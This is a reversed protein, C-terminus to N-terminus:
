VKNVYICIVIALVILVPMLFRSVNEIGKEVGSIVIISTLALFIIFFVLPAWEQSVFNGFFSDNAAETVEGTAFVTM